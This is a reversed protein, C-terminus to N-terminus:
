LHKKVLVIFIALCFITIEEEMDLMTTHFLAQSFIRLEYCFKINNYSVLLNFAWSLM